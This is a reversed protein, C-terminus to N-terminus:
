AMYPIKPPILPTLALPLRTLLKFPLALPEPTVMLPIETVAPVAVCGEM